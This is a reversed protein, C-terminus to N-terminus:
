QRWAVKIYQRISCAENCAPLKFGIRNQAKIASSNRVSQDWIQILRNSPLQYFEWYKIDSPSFYVIKLDPTFGNSSYASPYDADGFDVDCFDVFEYIYNIKRYIEIRYKGYGICAEAQQDGSADHDLTFRGGYNIEDEEGGVIHTYEPL